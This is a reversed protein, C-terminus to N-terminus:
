NYISCMKVLWTSMIMIVAADHNNDHGDFDHDFMIMYKELVDECAMHSAVWVPCIAGIIPHLPLFSFNTIIIIILHLLLLLIVIIALKFKIIINAVIM